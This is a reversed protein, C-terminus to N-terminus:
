PDAAKLKVRAIKAELASIQRDARKRKEVRRHDVGETPVLSLAPVGLGEAFAFLRVLTLNQRGSEVNAVTARCIDLRDALGQQTLGEDTRALFILAGVETCIESKSLGM